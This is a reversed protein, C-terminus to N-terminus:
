RRVRSIYLILRKMKLFFVTKMKYVGFIDVDNYGISYATGKFWTIRWPWAENGENIRTTEQQNDLTVNEIVSWNNLYKVHKNSERFTLFFQNDFFVLDTFAQHRNPDSTVKQIEAM